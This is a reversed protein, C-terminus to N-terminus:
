RLLGGQFSSIELGSSGGVLRENISKATNREIWPSFHDTELQCFHLECFTSVAPSTLASMISGCLKSKEKMERVFMGFGPTKTSNTM